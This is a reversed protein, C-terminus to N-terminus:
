AARSHGSESDRDDLLQELTELRRITRQHATRLRLVYLAVFGWVISYAIVFATM